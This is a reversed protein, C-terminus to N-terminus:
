VAFGLRTSLEQKAYAVAIDKMVGLSVGGMSAAAAKTKQWIGENRISALYDNGQNTMRFVGRQVEQFYGADCLWKAHTFRKQDEDDKSLSDFIVLMSDDTEEAEILLQKIFDDDRKM